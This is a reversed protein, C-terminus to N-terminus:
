FPSARHTPPVCAPTLFSLTYAFNCCLLFSSSVRRSQPSHMHSAQPWSTSVSLLCWLLTSRQKVQEYAMSDLTDLVEQYRITGDDKNGFAGRLTLLQYPGLQLAAVGPWACHPCPCLTPAPRIPKPAPACVHLGECGPERM